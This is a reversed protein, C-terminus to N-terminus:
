RIRWFTNDDVGLKEKAHAVDVRFRKADMPYGATPRLGPLRGMWFENFALMALERLYKSAISALASPLFSEGKSQFSITIPQDCTGIDYLSEHRSEHHVRVLRDGFRPQLFGAYSNRGGHKDCVVRIPGGKLESILDAVLDLTVTSLAAGKSDYHRVLDNFRQPFVAISRITLLEISNQALCDSFRKSCDQIVILESDIPLERDFDQYWPLSDTDAFSDGALHTWCKRWTKLRDPKGITAFLPFELGQLGGGPKYLEKSDAIALREHRSDFRKTVASDLASYLDHDVDDVQWVSASIVLPGLNPGYGAEDTGILYGMAAAHTM